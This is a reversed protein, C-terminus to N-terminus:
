EIGELTPVQMSPEAQAARHPATKIDHPVLMLEIKKGARTLLVRDKEIAVIRAAQVVDDEHLRQDNVIAIRRGEAYLIAHLVLADTKKASAEDAVSFTRVAPRTPDDLESAQSSRGLFLLALALSTLLQKKSM